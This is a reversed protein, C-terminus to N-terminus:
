VTAGLSMETSIPTKQLQINEFLQFPPPDAACVREALTHSYGGQPNREYLIPLRWWYHKVSRELPNNRNHWQEDAKLRVM